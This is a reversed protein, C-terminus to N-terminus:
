VCFTVGKAGPCGVSHCHPCYWCLRADIGPSLEEQDDDAYEEEKGIGAPQSTKKMQPGHQSTMGFRVLRLRMKLRDIRDDQNEDVPVRKPLM